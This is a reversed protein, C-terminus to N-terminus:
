LKLCHQRIKFETERHDEETWNKWNGLEELAEELAEGEAIDKVVVNDTLGSESYVTKLYNVVSTQSWLQGNIRTLPSWRDQSRRCQPCNARAPWQLKPHAPDETPDGALKRNAMNHLTWLWLISQDQTTPLFGLSSVHSSFHRACDRCSFFEAVYGIMSNAV